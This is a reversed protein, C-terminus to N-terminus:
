KLAQLNLMHTAPGGPPGGLGRGVKEEQEQMEFTVRWPFLVVTSGSSLVVM